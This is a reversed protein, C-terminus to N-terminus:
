KSYRWLFILLDAPTKAELIRILQRHACFQGDLYVHWIAARYSTGRFGLNLDVATPMTVKRGVASRERILLALLRFITNRPIDLGRGAALQGFQMCQKAQVEDMFQPLAGSLEIFPMCALEAAQRPGTAPTGPFIWGIGLCKHHQTSTCPTEIVEGLKQTLVSLVTEPEADPPCRSVRPEGAPECGAARPPHGQCVLRM